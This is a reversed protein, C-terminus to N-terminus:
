GRGDYPQRAGCGLDSRATEAFFTIQSLVKRMGRLEQRHRPGWFNDQYRSLKQCVGPSATNIALALNKSISSTAFASSPTVKIRSTTSGRKSSRSNIRKSM